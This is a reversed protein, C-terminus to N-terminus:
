PAGGTAPPTLRRAALAMLSPMASIYWYTGTICRHGIYTSLALIHQNLDVHERYWREICRCVFTHRIDHIRLRPHGGRPQFRLHPRLNVRFAYHIKQALAPQGADFVFFADSRAALPDRDRRHVYDRLARVTTPHLPVLRSSNCKSDRIRLLAESLDVDTRRLGVAESIRLGCSAILGLITACTIGRLGNAPPLETAARLLLGIEIDSYIHPTLRRHGPGFLLLPPVESRQDINQCYRAFGRLVEIRRAATIRRGQRSALAWRSAVDRTIPGRYGSRDTFRAFSALQKGEGIMSYGARRRETLYAKVKSHMTASANM